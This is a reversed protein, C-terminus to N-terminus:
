RRRINEKEIFEIHGCFKCKKYPKYNPIFDFMSDYVHGYESCSNRLPKIFEELEENAKKYVEIRKKCDAIKVELDHRCVDFSQGLEERTLLIINDDKYARTPNYLEYEKDDVVVRYLNSEWTRSVFEIVKGEKIHIANYEDYFLVYVTEGNILEREM